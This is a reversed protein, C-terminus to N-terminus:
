VILNSERPFPEPSIMRLHFVPCTILKISTRKTKIHAPGHLGDDSSGFLLPLPSVIPFPSTCTMSESALITIAQILNRLM